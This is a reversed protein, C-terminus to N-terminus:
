TVGVVDFWGAFGGFAAPDALTVVTNGSGWRRVNDALVSARQRNIENAVQRVPRHM